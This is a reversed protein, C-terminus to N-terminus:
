EGNWEHLITNVDILLEIWEDIEASTNPLIPYDYCVTPNGWKLYKSQIVTLTMLEHEVQAERHTGRPSHSFEWDFKLEM